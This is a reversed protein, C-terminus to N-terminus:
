RQTAPPSTARTRNALRWALLTASRRAAHRV